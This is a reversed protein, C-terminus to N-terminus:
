TIARNSTEITLPEEAACAVTLGLVMGILLYIGQVFLLDVLSHVLLHWLMGWCGLAIGRRWGSTHSLTRWATVIAGGFFVALGAIGLLGQEALVHLYLNHAHGLPDAWRPLAVEPYVTAYQGLGVGTWPKQAFMRWAAVWHARREIVAFNADTIEIASLDTGLWRLGEWLREIAGQPILTALWPWAALAIATTALTGIRTAQGAALLVMAAAAVAGILAGRSWSLILGAVMFAACICPLAILLWAHRPRTRDGRSQLMALPVGYALPLLLGLYGAYPNPQGFTGHARMFRGLIQFGEPGQQNAFQYIGLLGQAAASVLLAAVVWRSQTGTLQSSTFAFVAGLSLWKAWDKAAPVLEEASYAAILATLVATGVALGLGAFRPRKADGLTSRVFWAVLMALLLAAHVGIRLTAVSISTAPAFPVAFALGCLALWPHHLLALAAVVGALGALVYGLPAQALLWGMAAIALVVLAARLIDVAPHGWPRPAAGQVIM